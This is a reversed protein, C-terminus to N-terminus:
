YWFPKFKDGPSKKYKVKNTKSDRTPNFRTGYDMWYHGIKKYFRKSFRKVLKDVEEKTM